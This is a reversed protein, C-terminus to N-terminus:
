LPIWVGYWRASAVIKEVHIQFLSKHSVPGIPYMGKPHDFGLRTGQGGAVLIVGVHGACLAEAGRRRAEDAAIRGQTAGLRFAPPPAMRRALEGYDQKEDKRQYLAAVQRFDIEAVDDALRQRQEPDLDDWFALLHQQNFDALSALLDNKPQMTWNVRRTM